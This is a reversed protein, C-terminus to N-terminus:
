QLGMPLVRKPCDYSRLLNEPHNKELLRRDGLLFYISDPNLRYRLVFKGIPAMISPVNHRRNIGKLSIKLWWALFSTMEDEKFM